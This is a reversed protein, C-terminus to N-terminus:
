GRGLKGRLFKLAREAEEDLRDEASLDRWVRLARGVEGEPLVFPEMVINGSYEIRRLAAIVEEWGIHGRGPLNRNNEGVHFHGLKDGAKLIAEEMSVEEINMHFTDLHIKLNPSGVGAVYAVAEESTNLMFQEYRNVVEVNCVVGSDEATKVIEKMSEMSRRVYVPKNKYEPSETPCWAGSMVGSLSRGGMERVLKINRRVYDIGEQRINRDESSIDHPSLLTLCFTLELNNTEAAKKIREQESRSLELIRKSSVELIDFGMRAAKSIYFCLDVSWTKTWYLYYIGIKNM